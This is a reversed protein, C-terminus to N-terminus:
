TVINELSRMRAALLVLALPFDTTILDRRLRHSGAGGTNSRSGEKLSEHTVSRSAQWAPALGFILGTALSILITFALVQSDITTGAVRPFSAESVAILARLGWRALLLGAVGGLLGLIVSETVM